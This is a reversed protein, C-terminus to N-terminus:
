NQSLENSRLQYHKQDGKGEDILSETGGGKQMSVMQYKENQYSVKEPLFYQMIIDCILTAIGLFAIGSGLTVTLSVFNFRGGQGYVQYVISVGYVKWLDRYAIGTVPDRFATIYRYNFGKSIADSATPDIRIWSIEPNCNGIGKNLDCNFVFTGVVIAGRAKIAQFTTGAATVIDDVSFLNNGPILANKTNSRSLGFNPFRIDVRSFITWNMVDLLDTSPPVYSQNELPCWADLICYGNPGCVGTKM